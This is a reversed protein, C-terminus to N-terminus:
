GRSVLPAVIRAVAAAAAAPRFREEYLERAARALRDARDADEALAAAAEALAQPGEALLLHTGDVADLGMAGLPTSVVPLGTAFAELLKLRTGGGFRMPVLTATARSVEVGVDDVEGVLELGPAGALHSIRGAERGVLRVVAEPLLGRLRPLVDHVLHEAADVNAAVAYNGVFLFVPAGGAPPRPLLGPDPYTNPVVHVGAAGLAGMRRRDHESCVVVGDSAAVVRRQVRAWLPLEVRRQVRELRHGLSRAPQALYARWKETEIDDMDVLVPGSAVEGLATAHDMAGFWVLDYGQPDLWPRLQARVDDWRQAAVQWPVRDVVLRAGAALLPLPPPSVRLWRRVPVDPAFPAGADDATSFLVVLDVDAVEALGALVGACRLRKGGDLPWAVDPLTVLVRPRGPAPPAVAGEGPGPREPM